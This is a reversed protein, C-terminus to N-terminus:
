KTLELESNSIMNVGPIMDEPCHKAYVKEVMLLSNGLVKAVLWLPVGRRAMQTAATHRLVHPTVRPVGARQALWVVAHYAGSDDDLVYNSVREAFARELVPLLTDSIPVVARRKKTVARGPVNLDIVRTEFDVRGWTLEQVASARGATELALWLFREVRSLRGGPRNKAAESFLQQLEETRLWRDRPASDKPLDFMPLLAPDLLKRKRDACWSLCARMAVLERRITGDKSPRGIQGVRRRSVYTEVAADNIASVYRDGFYPRLNKWSMEATRASVSNILVHREYYASWCQSVTRDVAVAVSQEALLWQALFAKAGIMDSAGTSVRKSRRGDTWHIYYRGNSAKKLTPASM